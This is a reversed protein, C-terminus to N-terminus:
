QSHAHGRKGPLIGDSRYRYKATMARTGAGSVSRRIRWALGTARQVGTLIFLGVRQRQDHLPAIQEQPRNRRHVFHEILVTYRHTRRGLGAKNPVIGRPHINAAVPFVPWRDQGQWRGDRTAPPGARFRPASGDAAPNVALLGAQVL